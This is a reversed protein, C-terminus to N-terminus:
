DNFFEKFTNHGYQNETVELVERLTMQKKIKDKHTELFENTGFSCAGTITRYAIIWFDLDYVDDPSIDEYKSVDRDSTKFLWDRYAQKLTEGHAYIGDKEYIFCPELSSLSLGKIVNQKKRQIITAMDDIIQVETFKQNLLTYFCSDKLIDGDIQASKVCIPKCENDYEALTIWSGKTAKIISKYGIATAISWQGTVELQSSYGSSALQSYDGSSALKSSYGSSALQSYDGSSALQSSYGSSALKSYDGSSALKSYYGSSALKSYDGDDNQKSKNKTNKIKLLENVFATANTALDFVDKLEEIM